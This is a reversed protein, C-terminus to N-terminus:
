NLGLFGRWKGSSEETSQNLQEQLAKLTSEREELQQRTRAIEARERSLDLEAQRLMTNWEQQLDTLRQRERRIVENTDLLEDAETKKDLQRQLEANEDVLRRIIQTQKELIAKDAASMSASSEGKDGLRTLWQTKQAEWDTEVEEDEELHGEDDTYSEDEAAHHGAMAAQLLEIDEVAQQHRDRLTQLQSLDPLNGLRRFLANREAYLDVAVDLLEDHSLLKLAETHAENAQEPPAPFPDPIEPGASSPPDTHTEQKLEQVWTDLQVRVEDLSSSVDSSDDCCMPTSRDYDDAASPSGDSSSQEPQHAAPSNM